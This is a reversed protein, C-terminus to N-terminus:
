VAPKIGSKRTAQVEESAQCMCCAQCRSGVIDEEPFSPKSQKHRETRSSQKAPLAGYPLHRRPELHPIKPMM